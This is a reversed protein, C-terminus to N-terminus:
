CSLGNPSGEPELHSEFEVSDESAMRWVSPAPAFLHDSRWPSMSLWASLLRGPREARSLPLLIGLTAFNRTPYHNM